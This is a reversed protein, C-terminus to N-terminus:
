SYLQKFFNQNLPDLNDLDTPLKNDKDGFYIQIIKIDERIRNTFIEQIKPNSSVNVLEIRADELVDGIRVKFQPIEYCGEEIYNLLKVQQVIGQMMNHPVNGAIFFEVGLDKSLGITYLHNPIGQEFLGVSAFGFDDIAKQFHEAVYIKSM